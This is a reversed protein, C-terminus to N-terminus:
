VEEDRWAAAVHRPLPEPLQEAPIRAGGADLLPDVRMRKAVAEGGVQELAARVQARHLRHQAVRVDGGRLDIGVHIALPELRDDGLVRARLPLRGARDRRGQRNEHGGDPGIRYLGRVRPPLRGSSGGQILSAAWFCGWRWGRRTTEPM